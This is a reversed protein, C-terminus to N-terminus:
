APKYGLDSQCLTDKQCTSRKEGHRFIHPTCRAKEAGLGSFFWLIESVIDGYEAYENV